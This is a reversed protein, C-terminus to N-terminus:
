YKAALSRPLREMGDNVIPIESCWCLEPAVHVLRRAPTVNVTLLLSKSGDSLTEDNM